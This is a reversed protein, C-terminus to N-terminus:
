LPRANEGIRGGAQLEGRAGMIVFKWVEKRCTFETGRQPPLGVEPISDLVQSVRRKRLHACTTNPPRPM